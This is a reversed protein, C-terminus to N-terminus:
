TLDPPSPPPPTLRVLIHRVNISTAPKLKAPGDDGASDDKAKGKNKGGTDKKHKDAKTAPTKSKGMATTTATQLKNTPPQPKDQQTGGSLFHLRNESQAKPGGKMTRRRSPAYPM